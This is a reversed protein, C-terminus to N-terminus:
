ELGALRSLEERLRSELTAMDRVKLGATDIPSGYRLVARGPRIRYTNRPRIELTGRIGVPVIPLGGRLALLLGGRKLPLLRGDLSRTGEPFVVVSAGSRLERLAREFGARAKGRDGRDVSVFGGAKLAWGFLPIQFLSRKAMFRTEGPAGAILAPIDFLSQHNAMYVYSAEPDLATEFGTELRVGSSLLVGHSWLRAVRFVWRGRPPLWALLLATTSLVVTAVVMYLNGSLTAVLSALSSGGPHPRSQSTEVM